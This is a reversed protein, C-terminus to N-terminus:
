NQSSLFKVIDVDPPAAIGAGPKPGTLEDLSFDMRVDFRREYQYRLWREQAYWAQKNANDPCSALEQPDSAGWRLEACHYPDFSLSFVRLRAQDLDLTVPRGSSNTYSFQCARAESQYTSLLDKALNAGSYVIAPDGVKYRQLLSQAQTLLAMYSVKLRADRAPSAYDEWEGDAGYINMPLRLPHEKNQVGSALALNIAVVRDQLIGCLDTLSQRMDLIPDIRLTGSAMKLRLYDYYPMPNGNYLFQGKQWVGGADPNTGYFQELSYSSLETNKAGIIRGGVFAGNSDQKANILTLPRFNKFGAGQYPNSREFKQNYMGSTMTNDPHSDIYFIQGDDTVKYIITVHGNPDYIVTGPRIGERDLKVPYFDTFLKGDESGMMRYSASSTIDTITSNLLDVANPYRSKLFIEELQEWMSLNKASAHSLIDYRDTVYNGFPTYRIDKDNGEVARSNVSSEVSMPLGNKWAFYSRLYYPLDACDAYRRLSAPDSSAYPNGSGSLCEAVTQCERREVTTGISAIFTGFNQEDQVTWTPKTVRWESSTAAIVNPVSDPPQPPVTQAWVSVSVLLVVLNMLWNM